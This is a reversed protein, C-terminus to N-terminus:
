AGMIAALPRNDRGFRGFEELKPVRQFSIKSDLAGDRASPGIFTKKIVGFGITGTGYRSNINDLSAILKEQRAEAQPGDNVAFLDYQHASAPILDTLLVGIRLPRHKPVQAWIEALYKLLKITNNTEGFQLGFDDRGYGGLWKMQVILQRAHYDKERLRQAAKMLLYRLYKYGSDPTRLEPELVHQHGVCRTQTKPYDIDEGHLYAHFRLGGVGGWAAKLLYPPAACLEEMTRIGVRNLRAEMGPGIGSIDRIEMGYLAQPLDSRRLLTLGNPKQMDSAVKALFRNPAIGISSTLCEGVDRAIAAKAQRALELAVEPERQRGILPAAFEDISMVEDVPLVTEFAKIVAHHYEVYPRHKAEVLVIDPCLRRADRVLTGTRVGFAKAEYSAAICCTTDVMGPVVGVPRGRLEPRSQQECSAFFSNLDLFLWNVLDQDNNKNM